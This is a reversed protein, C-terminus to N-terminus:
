HLATYMPLLGHCKQSPCHSAHLILVNECYQLFNILKRCATRRIQLPPRTAHRSCLMLIRTWTMILLPCVWMEDLVRAWAHVRAARMVLVRQHTHGKGAAEWSQSWRRIRVIIRMLPTWAAHCIARVFLMCLHLLVHVVTLYAGGGAFPRCRTLISDEVRPMTRRQGSKGSNSRLAPLYM